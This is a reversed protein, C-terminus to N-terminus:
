RNLIWIAFNLYGAFTVWILYPIQLYAAAKNTKLYERITLFILLWLLRLWIFSFGFLRLNFFIISWLFNVVRSIAYIFLSREKNSEQSVPTKDTYIIASSVGMLIFLITWVIPFLFGPPSLPPTSVEKYIDMGNRTFFASLLGVSVSILISIIYPKAKKM